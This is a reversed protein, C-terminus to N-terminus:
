SSGKCNRIFDDPIQLGNAEADIRIKKANKNIIRAVNEAERIVPPTYNGVLGEVLNFENIPCHLSQKESLLHPSLVTVLHNDPIFEEYDITLISYGM